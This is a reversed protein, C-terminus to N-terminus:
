RELSGGKSRNKKAHIVPSQEKVSKKYFGIDQTINFDYPVCKGCQNISFDVNQLEIKTTDFKINIDNTDNKKFINASLLGTSQFNEEQPQKGIKSTNLDEASEKFFDNRM